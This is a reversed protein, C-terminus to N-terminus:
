PPSRPAVIVDASSRCFARPGPASVATAPVPATRTNDGSGGRAQGRVPGRAPPPSSQDGLIVKADGASVEMIVPSARHPELPAGRPRARGSIPHRQARHDAKPACPTWSRARANAGVHHSMASCGIRAGGWCVGGGAAFGAGPAAGDLPAGVVAVAGG